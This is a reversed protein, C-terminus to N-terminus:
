AVFVKKCLPCPMSAYQIAQQLYYNLDIRGDSGIIGSLGPNNVAANPANASSSSSIHNDAGFNNMPSDNNYNNIPSDSNFNAFSAFAAVTAAPVVGDGESSQTTQEAPNVPGPPNTVSSFLSHKLDVMPHQEEDEERESM